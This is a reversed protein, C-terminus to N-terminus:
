PKVKGEPKIATSQGLQSFRRSGLTWEPIGEPWLSISVSVDDFVEDFEVNVAFYWRPLRRVYSLTLEGLRGRDTDYWARAAGIHKENFRYNFGGGILDLDIDGAHRYGVVYSLRPNREIALSVNHRDLERDDLDFNLEHLFTTTDSM